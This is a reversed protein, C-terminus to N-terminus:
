PRKGQPVAEVGQGIIRSYRPIRNGMSGLLFHHGPCVGTTSSLTAAEPMESVVDDDSLSLTFVRFTSEGDDLLFAYERDHFSGRKTWRSKVLVLQHDAFTPYGLSDFWKFDKEMVNSVQTDEAAANTLFVLSASLVLLAARQRSM